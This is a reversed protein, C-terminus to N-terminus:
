DRIWCKGQSNSDIKKYIVPFLNIDYVRCLSSVLNSAKDPTLRRSDTNIVLVDLSGYKSFDIQAREKVSILLTSLGRKAFQAGSDAGGTLDDAILLCRQSIRNSQRLFSM